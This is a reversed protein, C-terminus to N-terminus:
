AEPEPARQTAILREVVFLLAILLALAADLPRFQAASPTAAQV